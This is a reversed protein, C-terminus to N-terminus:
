VQMVKGRQRMELKKYALLSSFMFFCTILTGLPLKVILDDPFVYPLLPFAFVAPLRIGIIQLLILMLIMDLVAALIWSDIAFYLLTGVTASITLALGQKFAMRGNYMPKQLSEYVVVLIPPIISLQYGVCWCLGIWIFTLILFLLMYRYQINVNKELGKHLGFLIVGLMLIIMCLIAVFIFTWDSASTVVPLLGTAISPGLSSQMIRLVLMVLVLTLSVKGLFAIDLQNILFGIVATISPALFIKAPQRIWGAERYVWMAIAMAAFEPIIIEHNMMAESIGVMAMIFAIAVIYSIMTEKKSGVMNM